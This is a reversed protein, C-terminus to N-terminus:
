KQVSAHDFGTILSFNDAIRANILTNPHCLNTKHSWSSLL